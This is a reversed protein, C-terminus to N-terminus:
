HQVHHYDIDVYYDIIFQESFLPYVSKELQRKSGNFHLDPLGLFLNPLM